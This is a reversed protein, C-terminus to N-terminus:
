KSIIEYKSSFNECFFNLTQMDRYFITMKICFVTSLFLFISGFPFFYIKRCSFTRSLFFGYLLIGRLISDFEPFHNQVDCFLLRKGINARACWCYYVVAILLIFFWCSKNSMFFVYM